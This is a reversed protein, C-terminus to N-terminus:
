NNLTVCVKEAAMKLLKESRIVVIENSLRGPNSYYRVTKNRGM